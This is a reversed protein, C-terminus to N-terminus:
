FHELPTSNDSEVLIMEWREAYQYFKECVFVVALCEKEVPAYRQETPSFSRLVFAVLQEKQLLPVGLGTESASCQIIAEKNVDYYKLLSTCLLQMMNLYGHRCQVKTCWDGWPPWMCRLAKCSISLDNVFGLLRQLLKIDKPAPM